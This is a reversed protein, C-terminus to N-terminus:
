WSGYPGIAGVLMIGVISVVTLLVTAGSNNFTPGLNNVLVEIVAGKGKTDGGGFSLSVASKHMSDDLM